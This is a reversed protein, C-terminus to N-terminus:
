VGGKHPFLLQSHLIPTNFLLVFGEQIIKAFNEAGFESSANEIVKIVSLMRNFRDPLMVRERILLAPAYIMLNVHQWDNDSLLQGNILKLFISLSVNYAEGIDVADKCTLSISDPQLWEMCKLQLLLYFLEIFALRNERLLVNKSSFFIHHIAEFAGDIFQAFEDRNIAPPFFYGAHEDLLLEKFQEKFTDAHNIQHYPSLQYYFDTDTALTVVSLADEMGPQFQLDELAICRAHERWSTRDQLNILLHKRPIAGQAYQRIFGRFEENVVAKNIFEQYVPAAIRLFSYRREQLYLDFLQNPLNHQMIPDFVHFADEELIDLVKFLPGNPHHKLLKSM